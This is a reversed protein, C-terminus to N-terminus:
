ISNRPSQAFTKELGLEIQVYQWIFNIDTVMKQPVLSGKIGRNQAFIKELGHESQRIFISGFSKVWWKRHQIHFLSGKIGPSHASTKKFKCVRSHISAFLLNKYNWSEPCIDKRFWAWKTSVALYIDSKIWWKRHQIHFLLGKIGPSHAFVKYRIQSVM